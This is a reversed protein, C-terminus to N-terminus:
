QYVPIIIKKTWKPFNNAVNEISLSTFICLAAFSLYIPSCSDISPVNIPPLLTYKSSPNRMPVDNQQLKLRGYYGYYWICACKRWSWSARVGDNALLRAGYHKHVFFCMSRYCVVLSWCRFLSYTLSASVQKYVQCVTVFDEVEVELWTCFISYLMHGVKGYWYWWSYKIRKNPQYNIM